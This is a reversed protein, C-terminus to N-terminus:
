TARLSFGSGLWRTATVRAATTFVPGSPATEPNNPSVNIDTLSDTSCAAAGLAALATLAAVASRKQYTNM